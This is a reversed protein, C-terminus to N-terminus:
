LPANEPIPIDEYTYKGIIQEIPVPRLPTRGTWQGALERSGVKSALIAEIAESCTRGQCPGMGCRTWAKLQNLDRAGSEIAEDIESRFVDECRCVITESTITQILEPRFKMLRVAAKGFNENKKLIILESKIKAKYKQSSMVNLDRVAAMGAIRGKQVASFAGSIGTADGAIYVGPISSRFDDDILPVWGGKLPDYIHKAKLLRTIETSPFLGHGIALCDGEVIKQNKSDLISGASNIPAISIRLVNDVQKTNTVAHGGYLKIGAKMINAFWSMGKFLQDPRSLLRPFAKIWDSKSNLDIIASVKGGSKIIGNAVAILLPGCGAVVTSQGPLVYQSKLLITSAALGIVGPITWGPFPIIRELAGNAIILSRAHWSSLGNPGVTSVVLDSSVSWVRHKFLATLNSNELINRQKEGERFEDSKFSNQPQFENPPARYIQGGASSNEDIIVVEAGEKSAVNAAAVGAPGAGLVVLDVKKVDNTFIKTM